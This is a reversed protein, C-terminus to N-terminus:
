YHVILSLQLISSVRTCCFQIERANKERTLPLLILSGTTVKSIYMMVRGNIEDKQFGMIDMVDIFYASLRCDTTLTHLHRKNSMTRNSMTVQLLM